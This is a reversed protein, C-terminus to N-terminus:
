ENFVYRIESFRRELAARAENRKEYDYWESIEYNSTVYIKKPTWWTFGGKIPVQVVYRDLLQLLLTLPMQGQFDDILAVEQGDYGDFWMEKQLPTQWFDEHNDHVYRTKGAGPPGILLIVEREVPEPKYLTQIHAFAKHHRMYCSPLEEFAHRKRVGTKALEALEMLDTRKGQEKPEGYEYPGSVRTDEKKCYEIAQAQTGRRPEYHARASFHKKLWDLSKANGKVECYGQYHETGNEGREKQYVLYSMWDELDLEEEPNNITFVFNRLRM